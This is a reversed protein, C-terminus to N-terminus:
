GREGHTASTEAWTGTQAWTGTHSLEPAYYPKGDSRFPLVQDFRLVEDVEFRLLRQAGRSAACKM